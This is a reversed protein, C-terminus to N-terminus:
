WDELAEDVEGEKGLLESELEDKSVSSAQLNQAERNLMERVTKVYITGLAVLNYLMVAEKQGSRWIRDRAQKYLGPLTIPEASIMTSCVEQLGDLGVGGSEYNAVLLRCKKDNIFTEKSKNANSGGYIVVPKYDKYRAAILEITRRYYAFIVVKNKTLNIEEILEDMALAWASDEELQFYTKPDSVARMCTARVSASMTIDVMSGDPFILLKEAVLKKYLRKHEGELNFERTIEEVPKLELVEKKDVRRAQKYLNEHVGALDHVSDIIQIPRDVLAGKRNKGRTTIQAYKVHQRDFAMRSPYIQPTVFRILGYYDTIDKYMPSGTMILAAKEGEPGMFLDIADRIQSETGTLPKAEDIVLVESKLMTDFLTFEQRFMTFSTCLIDPINNPYWKGVLQNRRKTDGRYLGLRLQHQIGPFTKVLSRMFQDCLVPPMLCLVKNGAWACWIAYAQAILTKGTGMDDYLAARNNPFQFALKLGTIQHWRPRMPEGTRSNRLEIGRAWPPSPSIGAEFYYDALTYSM